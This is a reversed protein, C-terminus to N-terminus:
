EGGGLVVLVNSSTSPLSQSFKKTIINSDASCVYNSDVIYKNEKSATRIAIGTGNLISSKYTMLVDKKWSTTCTGRNDIKKEVLYFYNIGQKCYNANIDDLTNIVLNKDISINHSLVNITSVETLSKNVVNYASSTNYLTIEM